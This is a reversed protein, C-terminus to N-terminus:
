AVSQGGARTWTAWWRTEVNGGLAEAAEHWPAVRRTGSGRLSADITDLFYSTFARANYGSCTRVTRERLEAANAHLALGQRIAKSLADIDESPFIFGNVGQVVLERAAVVDSVVVPVGAALAENVVYGWGEWSRTPVVVVGAAELVRRVRESSVAGLEELRILPHARAPELLRRDPGDGVIIVRTPFGSDALMVAAQALLDIGKKRVLRGCFVIEDARDSPPRDSSGPGPYLGPFIRSKPVGVSEFDLAARPSLAFVASVNRLLYRYVSNRVVRRLPCRPFFSEALVVYPVRERACQAMACFCLRNAFSVFVHVNGGRTLETVKRRLSPGRVYTEISTSAPATGLQDWGLRDGGYLVKGLVGATMLEAILPTLHRNPAPGWLFMNRLMPQQKSEAANAM